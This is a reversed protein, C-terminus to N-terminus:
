YIVDDPRVLLHLIWPAWCGEVIAGAVVLAIGIGIQRLSARAVIELTRSGLRYRDIGRRAFIGGSAALCYGATELLLHPSAAIVLIGLAMWGSDALGPLGHAASAWTIGWAAANWVIVFLLGLYRFVVGVLVLLLLIRVNHQALDLGAAFAPEGLSPRRHLLAASGDFWVAYHEPGLVACAIAFGLLVGVFLAVLDFTLARNAQRPTAVRNWIEFSNRQFRPFIYGGLFVVCFMAAGAFAGGLGTARMAYAGAAQGVLSGLLGLGLWKPWDARSTVAPRVATRTEFADEPLVGGPSARHRKSSLGPPEVESFHDSDPLFARTSPKPSPATEPAPAAPDNM